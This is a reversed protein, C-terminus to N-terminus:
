IGYQQALRALEADSLPTPKFADFDCIELMRQKGFVCVSGNIGASERLLPHILVRGQKDITSQRGYFSVMRQYHALGPDSTPVSAIKEEREIWVPLPYILVMSGDISTTFVERDASCLALFPETFSAPIKVRGKIDVKATQHGRLM